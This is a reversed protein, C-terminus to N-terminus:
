VTNDTSGACFLIVNSRLIGPVKYKGYLHSAIAIAQKGVDNTKLSRNFTSIERVPAVISSRKVLSVITDFSKVQQANRDLATKKGTSLFARIREEQLEREALNRQLASKSM